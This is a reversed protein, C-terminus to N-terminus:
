YKKHYAEFTGNQKAEEINKNHKTLGDASEKIHTAIAVLADEYGNMKILLERISPNNIAAIINSIAVENNLSQIASTRADGTYGEQRVVKPVNDYGRDIGEEANYM